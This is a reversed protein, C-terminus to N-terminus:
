HRAHFGVRQEARFLSATPWALQIASGRAKPPNRAMAAIKESRMAADRLYLKAVKTSNGHLRYIAGEGGRNIENDLQVPFRHLRGLKDRSMYYFGANVATTM